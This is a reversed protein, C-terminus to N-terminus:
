LPGSFQDKTISSRPPFQTADSAPQLVTCTSTAVDTRSLLQLPTVSRDPQRRVPTSRLSSAARIASCLGCRFPAYGLALRFRGVFTPKRARTQSSRARLPACRGRCSPHWPRGTSSFRFPAATPGPPHLTRRRACHIKVSESPRQTQYPKLTIVVGSLAANSRPTRGTRCITRGSM